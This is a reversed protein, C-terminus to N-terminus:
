KRYVEQFDKDMFQDFIECYLKSKLDMATDDNINSMDKLRWSRCELMKVVFLGCKFHFKTKLLGEAEEVQFPVIKKFNIEEGIHESLLAPILVTLYWFPLSPTLCSLNLLSVNPLIIETTPEPTEDAQDPNAESHRSATEDLPTTDTKKQERLLNIRARTLPRTESVNPSIIETTPEPTEDAQDPNAESHRSATEDLPNTDTDNNLIEDSTIRQRKELESVRVKIEKSEQTGLIFGKSKLHYSRTKAPSSLPPLNEPITEMTTSLLLLSECFTSLNRRRSFFAFASVRIEEDEKDNTPSSLHHFHEDHRRRLQNFRTPPGDDSILSIKDM